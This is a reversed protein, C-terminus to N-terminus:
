PGRLLDNLSLFVVPDGPRIDMAREPLDLLGDAAVMSTLVSSSDTHYLEASLGEPIGVLRARPFERRGAKKKLFFGAPVMRPPFQKPTTGSLKAILPQGLLLFAVMVAVPNGPLGLFAAKGIRGVALPKGPKLALRWLELTGGAALVAAKIHDEEGVSVGGSTIILDHDAEVEALGQRLLDPKDSVIGLDTVECGKATLLAKLTFRNADYICGPSLVAGPERLEDGTSFIAVRLRRYVPLRPLGLTAAVGLHQPRLVAGQVLATEGEAIAEGRKRIHAGRSAPGLLVAEDTAQCDEQMLVTDLDPPVEAGTFIRYARRPKIPDTLPHGAAVRGGIPLLAPQDSSLDGNRVAWGDVASVDSPPVAVASVQSVALVRDLADALPVIEIETPGAFCREITALAEDLRMLRNDPPLRDTPSSQRQTM